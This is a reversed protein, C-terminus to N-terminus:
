DSARDLAEGVIAVAADRRYAGAARVDDIPMLEAMHDPTVINSPRIHRPLGVLATELAKLRLAVPSASGIAVAARTILGSDDREILAASMIISIVLYRRAGLKVFSSTAGAAPKPVFVATLIEDPALATQRYGTIFSALPLCRRGRRSMLEVSADLTLLPPVGDAAPSANCLNGAITARNQIQVSGIERAAAKLGTFAPPLPSAIIDSWTTAAGIRILAPSETLGRLDEIASLDVIPRTIPHGAHAPYVDTGGSIKLANGSALLAM